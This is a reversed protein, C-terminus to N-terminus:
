NNVFISDHRGYEIDVQYTSKMRHCSDPFETRRCLLQVFARRRDAHM